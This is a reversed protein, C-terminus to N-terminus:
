PPGTTPFNLKLQRVRVTTQILVTGMVLCSYSNQFGRSVTGSENTLITVVPSLSLPSLSCGSIWM